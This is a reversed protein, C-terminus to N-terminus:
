RLCCKNHNKVDNNTVFLHISKDFSYKKSSALSTYIHTMLLKWEEVITMADRVNMLLNLFSM